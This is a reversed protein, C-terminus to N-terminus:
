KENENDEEGKYYFDQGWKLRVNNRTKALQFWYLDQALVPYDLSIDKAKLLQVLGRLHRSVEEISSSTVTADFRRKIRPLDDPSKALEQVARGFTKGEHNMLKTTRDRGQQHVAFLTLSIHIAWEGKTPEGYRTSLFSNPLGDLTIAWLEPTSGPHKGVGRRLQAMTAKFASEQVHSLSLVKHHVFAYVEQAQDGM